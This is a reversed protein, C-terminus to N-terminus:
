GRTEYKALEVRARLEIEALIESLVPDAIARTDKALTSVLSALRQRPYAGTILALRLQDLHDLLDKGRRMGRKREAVGTPMEQASLLAEIPTAAQATATESPAEAAPTDAILGAFGLGVGQNRGIKRASGAGQIRENTIKM